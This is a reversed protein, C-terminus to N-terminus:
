GTPVRVLGVSSEPGLSMSSASTSRGALAEAVGPQSAVLDTMVLEGPAALATARAAVSTTAGFYDLGAADTHAALVPGVEIGVRLSGLAELGRGAVFRRFRMLMELGAAVADAPDHFAILLSDGISKVRVGRHDNATQSLLRFHDRVFGFAAADGLERYLRTSGVLDTFLLALRRVRLPQGPAVVQPGLRWRYGPWTALRAASLRREEEVHRLVVRVRAEGPNSVDLRVRGAKLAVPGAGHLPTWELSGDGEDGVSLVTDTRRGGVGLTWRGPSLDVSLTDSGGPALQVLAVLDPRKAPFFTCFRESLGPVVASSVAMIVEVDDVLDVEFAHLCWRCRGTPAVQALAEGRAVMAGCRPCRTRWLLEFVGAAVGDLCGELVTDEDVGVAEALGASSLSQLAWDPLRHLLERLQQVLRDQGCRDRWRDLLSRARRDLVRVARTGGAQTPTPLENLEREWQVRLARFSLAIAASHARTRPEVHYRMTAIVGDGEPDLVAEYHTARLLPGECVRTRAVTQGRVWRQRTEEFTHRIGAPGLLVGRVAPFGHEDLELSARIPPLGGVRNLHDTDGVLRWAAGADVVGSRLELEM